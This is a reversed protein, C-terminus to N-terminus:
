FRCIEAAFCGHMANHAHLYAARPNEFALVIKDRVEGALSLDAGILM